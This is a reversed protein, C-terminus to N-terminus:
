HRRRSMHSTAWKTSTSLSSFVPSEHDSLGHGSSKRADYVHIGVCSAHGQLGTPMSDGEGEEGM